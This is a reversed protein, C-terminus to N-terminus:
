SVSPFIKPNKKLRAGSNTARVHSHGCYRRSGSLSQSVNIQVCINEMSSVAYQSHSHSHYRRPHPFLTPRNYLINIAQHLSPTATFNNILAEVHIWLYCSPSYLSAYICDCSTKRKYLSM